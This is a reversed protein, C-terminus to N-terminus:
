VNYMYLFLGNYSCSFSFDVNKKTQATTRDVYKIQLWVFDAATATCESHRGWQEYYVQHLAFKESENLENAVVEQDIQYNFELLYVVNWLKGITILEPTNFGDENIYQLTKRAATLFDEPISYFHM